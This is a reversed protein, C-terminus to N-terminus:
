SLLLTIRSANILLKASEAESILLICAFYICNLSTVHSKVEDDGM